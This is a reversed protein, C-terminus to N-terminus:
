FCIHQDYSAGRQLYVRRCTEDAIVTPILQNQDILGGGGHILFCIQHDVLGDALYEGHEQLPFMRDMMHDPPKDHSCFSQIVLDAIDDAHFLLVWAATKLPFDQAGADVEAQFASSAAMHDHDGALLHFFACFGQDLSICSLLASLSFFIFIDYQM